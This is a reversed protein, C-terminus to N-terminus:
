SYAGASGGVDTLLSVLRAPDLNGFVPVGISLNWGTSRWVGDVGRGLRKAGCSAM